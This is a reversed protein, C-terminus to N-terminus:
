KKFHNVIMDGIKYGLWLLAISIAIGLALKLLQIAVVGFVSILVAYLVVYLIGFLLIAGLIYLMSM